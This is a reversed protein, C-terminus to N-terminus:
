YFINLNKGSNGRFSGTSRDSALHRSLIRDDGGRM